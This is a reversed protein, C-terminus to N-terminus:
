SAAKYTRGRGSLGITLTSTGDQNELWFEGSSDDNPIGFIYYESSTATADMTFTGVYQHKYTPDPDPQQDTGDAMNQRYVHVLGGAAPTSGSVTLKLDLLPYNSEQGTNLATAVTIRSGACFSTNATSTATQLLGWSGRENITEGAM